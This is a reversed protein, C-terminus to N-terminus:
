YYNKIKSILKDKNLLQAKILVDDLSKSNDLLPKAWLMFIDDISLMSNMTDLREEILIEIACSVLWRSPTTEGEAMGKIALPSYSKDKDFLHIAKQHLKESRNHVAQLESFVAKIQTSFDIKKYEALNAHDLLELVQEKAEGTLKSTAIKIQQIMSTIMSDFVNLDVNEEHCIIEIQELINMFEYPLRFRFDTLTNAPSPKLYKYVATVNQIFQKLEISQETSLQEWGEFGDTEDMRFSGYTTKLDTSKVYVRPPKRLNQKIELRLQKKM